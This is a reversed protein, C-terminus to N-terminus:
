RHSHKALEFNAVARDMSSSIVTSAVNGIVTAGLGALVLLFGYSIVRGM